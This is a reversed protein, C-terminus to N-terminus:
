RIYQMSKSQIAESRATPAATWLEFIAESRECHCLVGGDSRASPAATWLEHIADSRECHCLVGGDSRATPAATWLEFIAESHESHRPTTASHDCHFINVSSQKM